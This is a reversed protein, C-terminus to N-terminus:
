ATTVVPPGKSNTCVSLLRRTVPGKVTVSVGGGPNVLYGLPLLHAHERVAKKSGNILIQM